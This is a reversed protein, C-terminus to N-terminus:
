DCGQEGGRGCPAEIGGERGQIDPGAPMQHERSMGALGAPQVVGCKQVRIQVFLIGDAHEGVEGFM